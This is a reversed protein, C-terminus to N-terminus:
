RIISYLDPSIEIKGEMFVLTNAEIEGKKAGLPRVLDFFMPEPLALADSNTPKFIPKNGMQALSFMPILILIVTLLRM